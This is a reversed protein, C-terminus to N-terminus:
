PSVRKSCDTFQVWEDIDDRDIYIFDPGDDIDIPIQVSRMEFYIVPYLGPHLGYKKAHTEVRIIGHIQLPEFVPLM